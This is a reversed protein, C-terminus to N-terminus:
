CSRSTVTHTVRTHTHSQTSKTSTFSIYFRSTLQHRVRICAPTLTQTIQWTHTVSQREFTGRHSANNNNHTNNRTHAYVDNHQHRKLFPLLEEWKVACLQVLWSLTLVSWLIHSRVYVCVHVCVCYQVSTHAFQIILLELTKNYLFGSGMLTTNCFAISRHIYTFPQTHPAQIHTCKHAHLM